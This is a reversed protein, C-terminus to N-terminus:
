RTGGIVGEEDQVVDRAENAVMVLLDVEVLRVRQACETTSRM